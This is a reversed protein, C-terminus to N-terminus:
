LPKPIYTSSTDSSSWEVLPIFDAMLSTPSQVLEARGNKWKLPLLKGIGKVEHTTMDLKMEIRYTKPIRTNSLLGQWGPHLVKWEAVLVGSDEPSQVVFCPSWRDNLALLRQLMESESVPVINERVALAETDNFKSPM